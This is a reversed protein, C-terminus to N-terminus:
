QLEEEATKVTITGAGLRIGLDIARPAEAWTQPKGAATLPGFETGFDSPEPTETGDPAVLIVDNNSGTATSLRVFEGKPLYVTVDGAGVALRVEDARASTDGPGTTNAFYDRLDLTVDGVGAAFIQQGSGPRDTPTFTADGLQINPGVPVATSLLLPVLLIIAVASSGGARKGRIGNIIIGVALVAIASAVGVLLAAANFNTGSDTGILTVIGGAVLALGIVVFSYLPHSRSRAREERYAAARQTSEAIRQARIRENAAATAAQRASAEQRRFIDHEAKWAAQQQRWAALDAASPNGTPAPPPPTFTASPATTTPASTAFAADAAGNKSGHPTNPAHPPHPTAGQSGRRILWVIFWVVAGIVLLTWLAHGIGGSWVPGDWFYGGFVPFVQFPPLLAIALLVAIAAIPSEFRGRVLEELHIKNGADPLLLWAAAYLLVVPAGFLALVVVIGRVILPDIGLRAAIGACVGGIWGPQRTLGLGRLWSFFRNGGTDPTPSPGTGNGAGTGPTTSGPQQEPYPPTGGAASGTDTPPTQQPM